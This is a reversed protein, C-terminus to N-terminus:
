LRGHAHLTVRRAAMPKKSRLRCRRERRFRYSPRLRGLPDVQQKSSGTPYLDAPQGVPQGRPKAAFLTPWAMTALSRVKVTLICNAIRSIVGDPQGLDHVVRGGDAGARASSTPAACQRGDLWEAMRAPALGGPVQALFAVPKVLMYFFWTPRSAVTKPQTLWRLNGM